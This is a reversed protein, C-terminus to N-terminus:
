KIKRKLNKNFSVKYVYLNLCNNYHLLNNKNKTAPYMTFCNNMSFQIGPYLIKFYIFYIFYIFYFLNSTRLKPLWARMTPCNHMQRCFHVKLLHAIKDPIASSMLPTCCSSQKLVKVQYLFMSRTFFWGNMNCSFGRDNYSITFLKIILDLQICLQKIWKRVFLANVQKCLQMKMYSTYWCSKTYWLLLCTPRGLTKSCNTM